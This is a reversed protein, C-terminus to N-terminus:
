IQFGGPTAQRACGYVAGAQKYISEHHRVADM